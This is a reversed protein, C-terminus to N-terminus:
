DHHEAETRRRDNKAASERNLAATNEQWAKETAASPADALHMPATVTNVLGGATSTVTSLTQSLLGCGSLLVAPAALLLASPKM